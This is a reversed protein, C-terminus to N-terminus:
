NAALIFGRPGEKRCKSVFDLVLVKPTCRECTCGVSYEKNFMERLDCNAINELIYEFDNPPQCDDVLNEVRITPENMSKENLVDEWDLLINELDKSNACRSYSPTKLKRKYAGRLHLKYIGRYKKALEEVTDLIIVFEKVAPCKTAIGPNHRQKLGRKNVRPKTINKAIKNNIGPLYSREAIGSQADM